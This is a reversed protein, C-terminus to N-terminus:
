STRYINKKVGFNVIKQTIFGSLYAKAEDEEIMGRQTMAHHVHHSIEHAIVNPNFDELNFYLYYDTCTIGVAMGKVNEEPGMQVHTWKEATAKRRIENGVNEAIVVHVKYEYLPVKITLKHMTAPSPNSGEDDQKHSLAPAEGTWGVTKNKKWRM